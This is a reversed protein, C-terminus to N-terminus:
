VALSSFRYLAFVECVVLAALAALGTFRYVPLGTFWYVALVASAAFVALGSFRLCVRLFRLCRFLVFM